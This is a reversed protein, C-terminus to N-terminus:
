GKWLRRGSLALGLKPEEPYLALWLGEREQWPKLMYIHYVQRKKWRNPKHMLYSRNIILYVMEYPRHWQALLKAEQDPLLILM